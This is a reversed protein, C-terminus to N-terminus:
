KNLHDALDATAAEHTPWILGTFGCSCIVYSGTDGDSYAPNLDIVEGTHGQEQM